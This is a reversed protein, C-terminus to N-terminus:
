VLDSTPLTLHTYSVPASVIRGDPLQRSSQRPEFGQAPDLVVECVVPGSTSLVGRLGPLFDASDLRVTSFGYAKALKLMDPFSVGSDPSEGVTNGFFGMQSTRISLYGDNNLVFIKLPLQYQIM